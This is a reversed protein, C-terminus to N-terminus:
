RWSRVRFNGSQADGTLKMRGRPVCTACGPGGWGVGEFHGILGWIHGRIGYKNMHAAELECKRQDSCNYYEAPASGVSVSRSRYRSRRWRGRASADSCISWLMLVVLMMVLKRM